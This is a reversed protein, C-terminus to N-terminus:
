KERLTLKIEFTGQLQTSVFLHVFHAMSNKVSKIVM